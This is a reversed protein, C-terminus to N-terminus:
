PITTSRCTIFYNLSWFIYMVHIGQPNYGLQRCVAQVDFASWGDDCVTGWRQNHCLEVRGERASLGGVLRVDGHRCYDITIFWVTALIRKHLSVCNVLLTSM